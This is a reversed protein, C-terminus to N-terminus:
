VPRRRVTGQQDDRGVGVILDHTGAPEYVGPHSHSSGHRHQAHGIAFGRLGGAFIEVADPSVFELLCQALQAGGVDRHDPKPNRVPSDRLKVPKTGEVRPKAERLDLEAVM